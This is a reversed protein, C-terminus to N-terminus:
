PTFVAPPEVGDPLNFALLPGVISEIRLLQQAVPERLDPPVTLRVAASAADVWQLAAEGQPPMAAPGASVHAAVIRWGCDPFRVWVQTQRNTRWRGGVRQTAECMVNAHDAGFTTIQRRVLTRETFVPASNQRFAAIEEAGYLQEHVGFRVVHPSDWFAGNLAPIDNAALAREYADHLSAIESVTAPDNLVPM